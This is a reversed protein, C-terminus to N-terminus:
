GQQRKLNELRVRLCEGYKDDRVLSYATAASTIAESINGLAGLCQSVQDHYISLRSQARSDESALELARRATILAENHHKLALEAKAQLYLLWHDRSEEPFKDIAALAEDFNEAAIFTKAVVRAVYPQNGSSRSLEQAFASATSRLKLALDHKGQESAVAAVNILAECANVWQREDVSNPFIALMDPVVEAIALCLKGHRYAFLSTMALFGEYFQYFGELASLTVVDALQKVSTPDAGLEKSVDPYSRLRSLAALSVRLPVVRLDKLVEKILSRLAKEGESRAEESAGRQIGLHAIQGYTAHWGPREALLRQFCALAADLQGSRRLAKGQHHRMEARVNPDQTEKAIKEYENVCAEYYASRDDKLLSYSYAEKSDVICLLEAIPMDSRLAMGYLQSIPETEASREIQLLAYTLWDPPREGRIEHAARLQDASLHIQRLVNPVMEGGHYEVYREVADALEAGDTANTRVAGCILEHVSLTSSTATRNLIGLRQLSARANAGIFTTLFRSDYTACGSNAIKILAQRNMESLRQLLRSMIPGGDEGHVTNPMALVERYLEDNGIGEM